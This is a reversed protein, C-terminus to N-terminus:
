GGQGPVVRSVLDGLRADKRASGASSGVWYGVVSTAMAGLTGLLVNLVPEANTPLTRLLPLAVVAGFTLLVIVSVIPAGWAMTENSQTLQLTTARANAVEALQAALREQAARDAASAQQAAISALQVRLQGAVDPDALAAVQAAPHDTGTVVKVADQVASVTEASSAGFLWRGLEPALDLAVGGVAGLATGVGPVASGAAAGSAADLGVKAWDM